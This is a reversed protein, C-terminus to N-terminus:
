LANAIAQGTNQELKGDAACIIERLGQVTQRIHFKRQFCRRAASRMAQRGADTQGMWRAFLADTGAPTDAEVLGAGASEVERWINVKNSILVPTGCALSEAVVVGFNESHSPLVFVEAARFAGYKVSGSLMGPWHVRDSVGLRGALQKLKQSLGTADPGAIVLRMDPEVGAIRAFSALLLDCGKKEHIRSMYLAIRKDRLGPVAAHFADIDGDTLPPSSCGFNVVKESCRYLWFSKRALRREEESTFIVGTADRLARYEAWPWYLWKKLHKLPYRAKFWPDLAGHPFVYYPTRGHRLEMWAARSQYQWIGHVIVADFEHHRARLFPRLRPTYAYKGSPGTGLAEVKFNHRGIWPETAADLTAVEVEDGQAISEEALSELASVPGGYSPDLTSIVHLLKM